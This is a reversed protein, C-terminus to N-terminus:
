PENKLRQIIIKRDVVCGKNFNSVYNLCDLFRQLQTKDTILYPFKNSFKQAHLQLTIQGDEIMHGM